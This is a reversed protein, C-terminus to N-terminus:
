QASLSFQPHASTPHHTTIIVAGGNAQHAHCAEHWQATSEQDLTSFPEDLLWLSADVMLLRGLAIRRCQGASLTICKRHTIHSLNLQDLIVRGDRQAGYLKGWWTLNDLASLQPDLGMQHGIYVIKGRWRYPHMPTGEWLVDGDYDHLLGAITALLTTKGSGNEGTIQLLEGARVSLDIPKFLPIGARYIRLQRTQLLTMPASNDVVASAEQLRIAASNICYRMGSPPPGDDFLHGLHAHCQACLVETRKRGGSLDPANITNDTLAAFFSPWGTGSDYKTHSAFLETECCACVYTGPTHTDWYCGTFPAETDKKRCIRYTENDLRERWEADSRQIPPLQKTSM